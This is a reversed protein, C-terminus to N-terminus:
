RKGMIGLLPFYYLKNKSSYIKVWAVDFIREAIIRTSEFMDEGPGLAFCADFM